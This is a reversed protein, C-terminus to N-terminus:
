VPDVFTLYLGNYSRSTHPNKPNRIHFCINIPTLTPLQIEEKIRYEPCSVASKPCTTCTLYLHANRKRAEAMHMPMGPDKVVERRYCIVFSTKCPYKEQQNPKSIANDAKLTRRRNLCTVELSSPKLGLSLLLGHLAAPATTAGHMCRPICSHRVMRTDGSKSVISGLCAWGERGV